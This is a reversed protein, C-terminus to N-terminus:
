SLLRVVSVKLAAIPAMIGVNVDQLRKLALRGETDDSAPVERLLLTDATAIDKFPM